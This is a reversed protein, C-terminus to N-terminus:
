VGEILQMRNLQDLLADLDKAATAEDIDFEDQVAALLASRSIDDQLQEWIFASVSNLLVAGNYTGINGDIPMLIYEKVVKRLVFGPKAKM